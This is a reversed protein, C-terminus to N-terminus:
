LAIFSTSTRWVTVTAAMRRSVAASPNPMTESGFTPATEDCHPQRPRRPQHQHNTAAGSRGPSGSGAPMSM